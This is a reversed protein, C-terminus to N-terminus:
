DKIDGVPEGLIRLAEVVYAFEKEAFKRLDKLKPYRTQSIDAKKYIEFNDIKKIEVNKLICAAIYMVKCARPRAAEANFTGSFLHTGLERCGESLIHYNKDNTDRAAIVYATQITDLLADEVTVNIPKHKDNARYKIEEKVTQMYTEYVDNSKTMYEFLNSIDYLQKIIELECNIDTLVGDKYISKVFPVGTTNPAFATLKDGLICDISPVKIKTIPDSTLLFNNKIGREELHAYTDKEFLVDFKIEVYDDNFKSKNCKFFYHRKEIGDNNIQETEDKQKYRVATFPFIESAKKIYLDIDTGKPVAGDVDTSLRLPEDMLITLCTGGKFIFDLGALRLAEALKLAYINREIIAADVGRNGKLSLIYEKTYNEELIM